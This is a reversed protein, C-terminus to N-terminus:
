RRRPGPGDLWACHLAATPRNSRAPIASSKVLVTSSSISVVAGFFLSELPKWGLALGVGCGIAIVALMQVTAGITAVKGTRLLDSLELEVGIAFM